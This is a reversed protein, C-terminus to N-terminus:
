KMEEAKMAALIKKHDQVLKNVGRVLAAREDPEANGSGAWRIRCNWDVLYVYGVKSNWYGMSHRIDETLGKQVLFYNKHREEPFRKRLGGLFLRQLKAKMWNEEVNVDVLQAEGEQLVTEGELERVFTGVQREAWQASFVSVVSVKGFLARTTDATEPGALTRGVLNPFHLAKDARFLLSPAIWSKGQFQRSLRSFDRFYPKIMEHKLHARKELHRDYDVLDARRQAWTRPDAGTNDHPQPADPLGIPRVLAPPKSKRLESESEPPKEYEVPSPRPPPPPTKAPTPAPPTTSSALLRIGLFQPLPLARPKTLLCRGAPLATLPRLFLRM